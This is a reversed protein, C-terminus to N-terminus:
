AEGGQEAATATTSMETPIHGAAALEKMLRRRARHLRVAFTGTSCGAARAARAFELGEWAALRLAERDRESLRGLAAIVADREAVMAAVDARGGPVSRDQSLRALLATRRRIGRRQNAITKRAVGYLWPLADEPVASLRRWAVLFTEAAVDEAIHPEVRRLAYALVKSYHADFLAEFRRIPEDGGAGDVCTRGM